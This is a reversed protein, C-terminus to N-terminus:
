IDHQTITHNQEDQYNNFQYIFNIRVTDHKNLDQEESGFYMAARGM